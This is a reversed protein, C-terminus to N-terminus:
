GEYLLPILYIYAWMSGLFLGSRSRMSFEKDKFFKSHMRSFRTGFIPEWDANMDRSNWDFKSWAANLFKDGIEHFGDRAAYPKSYLFRPVGFVLASINSDFKWMADILDPFQELIYSGYFSTIACRAMQQELFQYVRITQWKGQLQQSLAESFFECFKATMVGVAKSNSINDMFIRHFPAWMREEEPMNISPVHSTGSKDNKFKAVDEQTTGSLQQLAMYILENSSLSGSNRLAYQVNKGRTILYVGKQGIRFKV